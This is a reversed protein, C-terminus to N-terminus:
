AALDPCLGSVSQLNQRFPSAKGCMVAAFGSSFNMLELELMAARATSESPFAFGKRVDLRRLRQISITLELEL